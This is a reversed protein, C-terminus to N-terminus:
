SSRKEIPGKWIESWEGEDLRAQFRLEGENEISFPLPPLSLLAGGKGDFNVSGSAKRLEIDNFYAVVELRSSGPADAHMALLVTIALTAPFQSIEINRGYMGLIILKGNDERRIDECLIGFKIKPRPGSM